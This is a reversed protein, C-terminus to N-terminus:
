PREALILEGLSGADCGKYFTPAPGWTLYAPPGTRDKAVIAVDFGLRKDPDLRTPRDPYHDFAQVAWEYTTVGSERRYKMVTRTQRIRGYMLTPNAGTQDAYAPIPGPVGVYQIVPMESADLIDKWDASTSPVKWVYKRDSHNGDVFIEVADTEFVVRDSRPKEAVPLVNEDDKVVVAVYILGSGRDYGVMFDGQPDRTPGRGRSDYTEHGIFQNRIPHRSLHGPWDDLRGDITIGSLPM